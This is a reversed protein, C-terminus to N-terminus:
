KCSNHYENKNKNSKGNLVNNKPWLHAVLEYFDVTVTRRSHGVALSDLLDASSALPDVQNELSSVTVHRVITLSVRLIGSHLVASTKYLFGFGSIFTKQRSHM